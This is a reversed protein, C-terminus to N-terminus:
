FLGDANEFATDLTWCDADVGGRIEHSLLRADEPYFRHEPSYHRMSSVSSMYLDCYRRLSHAFLSPQYRARFVSGFSNGLLNTQEDRCKSILREMGDIVRLDDESRSEAGLTYQVSRLTQLLVDITRQALVFRTQSQM